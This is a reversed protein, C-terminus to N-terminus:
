SSKYINPIPYLCPVENYDIVNFKIDNTSTCIGDKDIYIDSKTNCLSEDSIKLKIINYYESDFMLEWDSWYKYRCHYNYYFICRRILSNMPINTSFTNVYVGKKDKYENINNRHVIIHLGTNETLYKFDNIKVTRKRLWWLMMNYKIRTPLPLYKHFKLLKPDEVSFIYSM